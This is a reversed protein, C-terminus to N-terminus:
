TIALRDTPAANEALRLWDVLRAALPRPMLLVIYGLLEHNLRWWRTLLGPTYDSPVYGVPGTFGSRGILVSIRALHLSDSIMEIGAANNPLMALASELNSHTDNSRTDHRLRDPPVGLALATDAMARAGLYSRAPRWGGVLILEQLGGSRLREVARAVRADRSARDDDYFVVGVVLATPPQPLSAQQFHSSRLEIAGLAALYAALLLGVLLYIRRRM